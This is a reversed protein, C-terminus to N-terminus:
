PFKRILIEVAALAEERTRVEGKFRLEEIQELLNGIQKGEKLSFIQILDDGTILRGQEQIPLIHEYYTDAIQKFRMSDTPRSAAAYLLVGWWYPASTRLFYVIQEHTLQTNADQFFEAYKATILKMFQTARRSLRIQRGTNGLSAGLLLIVKILSRRSVGNELEDRLYNKIEQCYAHFALPIPTEEFTKLSRWADGERNIAPLVETLIGVTDMQRLYLHSKEVDLVKMLEDRCREAAASALLGRHKRVLDISNESIEFGLQAAFRYIRLLRIPDAWIVRESPFRLTRLKLDEMGGCPDIVRCCNAGGARDIVTDVNEFGIAMANITLDRLRLDDILSAARFQAFDMSLQASQSSTCQKVVVRATPPKEELPICTAKIHAAFAKAFHIADADLAFDFDTTQRKLLLDRVSGGVLYLRVGRSKAFVCLAQMTRNGFLEHLTSHSIRM